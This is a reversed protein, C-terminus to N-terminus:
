KLPEYIAISLPKNKELPLALMLLDKAYDKTDNTSIFCLRSTILKNDQYVYFMGAMTIIYQQKSDAVASLASSRGMKRDHEEWYVTNYPGFALYYRGLRAMDRESKGGVNELKHKEAWAGAGDKPTCKRSPPLKPFEQYYRQKTFEVTDQETQAWAPSAALLLSLILLYRV